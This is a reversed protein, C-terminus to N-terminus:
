ALTISDRLADFELQSDIRDAPIDLMNFTFLLPSNLVVLTRNRVPGRNGLRDEYFFSFRFELADRDAVRGVVPDGLLRLDKVFTGIGRILDSAAAAPTEGPQLPNEEVYVTVSSALARLISAQSVVVVPLQGQRLEAALASDPTAYEYENRIDAFTRLNEYSWRPPKRFALGIRHNVYLDGSVVVASLPTAAAMTATGAFRRLFGRRSPEPADDPVNSPM